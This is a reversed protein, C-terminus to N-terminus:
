KKITSKQNICGTIMDTLCSQATALDFAADDLEQLDPKTTCICSQEIHALAATIECIAQLGFQRANDLLLQNAKTM